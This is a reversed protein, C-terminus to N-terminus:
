RHRWYTQLEREFVAAANAATVGSVARGGFEVTVAQDCPGLCFSGKLEVRGALGAAALCESFVRVVEASGKLHCASGVCVVIRPLQPTPSTTPAEPTPQM